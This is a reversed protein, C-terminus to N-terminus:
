VPSSQSSSVNQRKPRIKQFFGKVRKMLADRKGEGIFHSSYNKVFFPFYYKSHEM